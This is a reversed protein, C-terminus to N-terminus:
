LLYHVLFLIFCQSIQGVPLICFHQQVLSERWKNGARVDQKERKSYIPHFLFSALIKIIAYNSAPMTQLPLIASYKNDFRECKLALEEQGTWLFPLVYIFVVVCVCGREGVNLSPTARIRVSHKDPDPDQIPLFLIYKCFHSFSTERLPLFVSWNKKYLNSGCWNRKLLAHARSGCWNRKILNPGPDADTEKFFSMPEPDSSFFPSAFCFNMWVIFM